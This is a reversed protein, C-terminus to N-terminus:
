WGPNQVLNRNIILDRERIPWFYDKLSFRQNFLTKVRYYADVDKQDVDWGTIPANLEEPAKKWRRLDWFREGELAFEITREQQIIERLGQKTTYKSPNRSYTSWASVIGPLEYKARIMDLYEIAENSQDVENLAEAYLLYLDGLRLMVWPYNTSVYTSANTATNTYNVLKKPWYGPVAHWGGQQKGLFQGSKSELWYPAEDKYNGNGYWIGGDFGLSGYFRPERDFNFEVTTYGKKISYKEDETGIRLNFRQNYNWTIDEQIPVGNKSYFCDVFNLTVGYSGNSGTYASQSAQLARPASWTQLNRSTSSTNAWIIENNWRETITGRCNLQLKTENSISGTLLTPQFEYLEHGISHAFEIAEKCAIVAKGWKEASYTTNFLKTGDHNTFDQYDINGNFLPSAAYVLIKAKMGMAIPQTIRGLESNEDTVNPPLFPIAEDILEVIYDYVDDVPERYVRVEQGSASIPLNEKIIPIPGYSRVMWFHYFAKLFKVEAAWKEKEWGEVDPVSNINELFINCQSIGTWIPETGSGAWSDLIPSNVNQLGQAISWASFTYVEPNFWFEDAGFIGPNRYPANAMDPLFSYCTFLYKEATSRMRFAYDITAVNDPVIDLYDTCGSMITLMIGLISIKIYKM